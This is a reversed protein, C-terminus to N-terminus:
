RKSVVNTIENGSIRSMFQLKRLFFKFVDINVKWSSICEHWKDM